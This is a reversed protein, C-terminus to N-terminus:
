ANDSASGCEHVPKEKKKQGTLLWSQELLFQIEDEAASGDLAVTIWQTKSMHYAPFFGPKQRLAGILLPDCKLNLFLVDGDKRVGLTKWSLTGMLAFWKHNDAHRFIEFDPYSMFPYDGDVSYTDRIYQEWQERTM